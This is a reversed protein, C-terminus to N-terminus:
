IYKAKQKKRNFAIIITSVQQIGKISNIIGHIYGATGYVIYQM